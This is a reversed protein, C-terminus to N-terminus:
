ADIHMNRMGAVFRLIEPPIQSKTVDLNWAAQWIGLVGGLLAILVSEAFLLRAIRFRSAGLAAELAIQRQRGSNLGKRRVSM